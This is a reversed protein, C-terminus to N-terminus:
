PASCHSSSQEYGDATMLLDNAISILSLMQSKINAMSSGNVFRKSGNVLDNVM